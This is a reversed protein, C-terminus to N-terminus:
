FAITGPDHRTSLSSLTLWVGANCPQIPLLFTNDKLQWALKKRTDPADNTNRCTQDNMFDDLDPSYMLPYPDPPDFNYRIAM